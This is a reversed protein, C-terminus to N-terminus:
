VRGAEVAHRERKIELNRKRTAHAHGVVRIAKRQGFRDRACARACAHDEAHDKSRAHAAADHDVSNRAITAVGDATLKAVSLLLPKSDLREDCATWVFRALTVAALDIAALLVDGPGRDLTLKARAGTALKRKGVDFRGRKGSIRVCRCHDHAPGFANGYRKAIHHVKEVGIADHEASTRAIQFRRGVDNGRPDRM